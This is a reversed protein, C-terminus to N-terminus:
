KAPLTLRSQSTHENLRERILQCYQPNQEIGIVNRNLNISAIMESGSGAFPILINDDLNSSHRILKTTLPISKPTLHGNKKEPPYLFITSTDKEM